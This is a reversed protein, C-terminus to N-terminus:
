VTVTRGAFSSLALVGSSTTILEFTSVFMTESGDSIAYFGDVLNSVSYSIPTGVNLTLLDLSGAGGLFIGTGFGKLTDDGDGLDILGPGFFGGTLADVTDNGKGTAILGFNAIGAYLDIASDDVKGSGSGTISDKGDGGRIEGANLIGAALGIGFAATDVHSAKATATGTIIANGSGSFDIVSGLGNAIGVAAAASFLESSLKVDKLTVSATGTLKQTFDCSDCRIVAGGSFPNANAIGIALGANILSLSQKQTTSATAKGEITNADTGLNITGVNLVGSAISANLISINGATNLIAKGTGSVKDEDAGTDLTGVNLLGIGLSGNVLSPSYSAALQEAYALEKYPATLLTAIDEATQGFTNGVFSTVGKIFDRGTVVLSGERSSVSAEGVGTVTDKGSGSQISALNTLGISASLNGLFAGKSSIEAEAEGSIKDNGDGTDIGGVNLLGLALSINALTDSGSEIEAEASGSVEDGGAGTSISSFINSLGVAGSICALGGGSSKIEAEANGSVKDEGSGTALSSNLAGYGIALTINALGAPSSAIRASASGSVTNKGNGLNFTEGLLTLGLAISVNLDGGTVCTIESKASGSILDNGSGAVLKGRLYISGFANVSNFSDTGATGKLAVSVSGKLSNSASGLSIESGSLAFIGTKSDVKNSKTTSWPITATGDYTYGTSTAIVPSKSYNITIGFDSSLIDTLGNDPLGGIKSAM